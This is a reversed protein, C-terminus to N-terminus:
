GLKLRQIFTNALLLQVLTIKALLYEIRSKKFFEALLFLFCGFFSSEIVPKIMFLVIGVGFHTKQKMEFYLFSLEDFLKSRRNSFILFIM